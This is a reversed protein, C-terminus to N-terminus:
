YQDAGSGHLCSARNHHIRQNRGAGVTWPGADRSHGADRDRRQSRHCWQCWRDHHQAREVPNHHSQVQIIQRVLNERAQNLSTNLAMNSSYAAMQPAISQETLQNNRGTAQNFNAAIGLSTSLFDLVTQNPANPDLSSMNVQVADVDRLLGDITSYIRDFTWVKPAGITVRGFDDEWCGTGCSRAPQRSGRAGTSLILSFWLLAALPFFKWSNTM